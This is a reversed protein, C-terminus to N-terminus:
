RHRPPRVATGSLVEYTAPVKGNLGYRQQYINAMDRLLRRSALGRPAQPSANGAGIGKLGQLLETVDGHYEVLEQRQLELQQFGADALAQRVQSLEPLDHLHGAAAGLPEAAQRYASKLERLTEKGFLAFAFLGGDKLVRANEAFAGTLDAIWQYVSSSCLLDFSGDQFPLTEAAADVALAAPLRKRTQLTMGHAIDCVVARMRPRQSALECALTGTGCGIDLFVGQQPGKPKLLQILRDVVQKQIRAHHDYSAASTSFNRRLRRKDVAATMDPLVGAM